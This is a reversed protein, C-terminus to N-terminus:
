KRATQTAGNEALIKAIVADAKANTDEGLNASTNAPGVQTSILPGSTDRVAVSATVSLGVRLPHAAISNM